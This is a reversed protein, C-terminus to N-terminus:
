DDKEELQQAFLAPAPIGKAWEAMRNMAADNAKVTEEYTEELSRFPGRAQVAVGDWAPVETYPNEQSTLANRSPSCSPFSPRNMGMLLMFETNNMQMRAIHRMHTLNIERIAARRTRHEDITFYIWVGSAVVLSGVAIAMLTIM